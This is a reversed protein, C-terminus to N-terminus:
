LNYVIYSLNFSHIDTSSGKMKLPLVEPVIYKSFL